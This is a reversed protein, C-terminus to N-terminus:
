SCSHLHVFGTRLLVKSLSCYIYKGVDDAALEYTSGVAGTIPTGNTSDSDSRYWQYILNGTNNSATVTATLTESFKPIGTVNVTGTLNDGVAVAIIVVDGSIGTINIQGTTSDYCSSIDTGGMTISVTNPLAYGYNAYLQNTYNDGADVAHGTNDATLNTLLVEIDYTDKQWVAYLIM